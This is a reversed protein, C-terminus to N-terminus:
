WSYRKQYISNEEFYRRSISWVVSFINKHFPLIALPGEKLFFQSANIIKVNHKIIATIAVEEYNKKISRGAEIKNYLQSQGGICLIILDYLRKKNEITLYGVESNIEDVNKKIVKINKKIKVMQILKEKLFKNQFVYMSNKNKENFNLFNTIKNEEEFFLNIDRCPWLLSKKKFNLNNKIFQFNSESIATTRNDLNKSKKKPSSYLEIKLNQKSLIIATILGALGDGIICIKQQEM